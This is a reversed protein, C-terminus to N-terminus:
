VSTARESHDLVDVRVRFRRFPSSPFRDIRRGWIRFLHFVFVETDLLLLWTAYKCCMADYKEGTVLVEGVTCNSDIRPFVTLEIEVIEAQAGGVNLSYDEDSIKDGISFYIDGLADLVRSQDQSTIEAETKNRLIAQVGFRITFDSDDTANRSVDRRSRQGCLVEVDTVSCDAETACVEESQLLTQVSSIFAAKLAEKNDECSGSYRVHVRNVM